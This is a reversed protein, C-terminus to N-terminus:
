LVLRQRTKLGTQVIGEFQNKEMADSRVGNEFMAIGLTCSIPDRTLSLASQM